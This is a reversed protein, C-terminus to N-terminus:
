HTLRFMQSFPLLGTRGLTGLLWQGAPHLMVPHAWEAWRLRRAFRHHLAARAMAVADPWACAGRAYDLMMGSLTDAAQIAMTMGNGTFPPIIALADGISPSVDDSNSQWGPLFKACGVLSDVVLEANGLRDALTGLGIARTAAALRHPQPDRTTLADAPFLGCANVLGDEIKALGLYGGSGLHMELDARLDLHRFHAKLGCWNSARAAQRGCALIRGPKGAPDVRSHDHLKGGLRTFEAAMAADMRLRSLGHVQVPLDAQYILKHRRDYWACSRNIAAHSYAETLGLMGPMAPDLGCLFEGCVRHRPYDGAEHIDVPVGHRRLLIGAALGAPGGGVIELSKHSGCMDPM